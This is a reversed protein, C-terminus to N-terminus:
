NHRKIFEEIEGGSEVTYDDPIQLEDLKIQGGLWVDVQM